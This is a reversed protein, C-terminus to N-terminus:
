MKDQHKGSSLGDAVSSAAEKPNNSHGTNQHKKPEFLLSKMGKSHFNNIKCM